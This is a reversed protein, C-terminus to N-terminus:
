NRSTVVIICVSEDPHMQALVSSFHLYTNGVPRYHISFIDGSKTTICYSPCIRYMFCDEYNKAWFTLSFDSSFLLKLKRSKDLKWKQVM